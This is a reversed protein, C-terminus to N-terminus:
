FDFRLAFQLVRSPETGAQTTLNGLTGNTLTPDPLGYNTHNFVNYADARFTLRYRENPLPFIKQVGFDLNSFHPGRLNDRTGVQLGTVPVFANAVAAPDNFLQVTTQGSVQVKHVRDRLASKPGVFVEGADAALSTTSAIGNQATFALGTRWTEVGSIQWGGIAENVLTGVSHGFKQGKGVPLDYIFFATVQHTADFESNGRCAHPDTADCLITTVGPEFNGNAHPVTSNNDISHSFTYDFDFQLNNSLRKRLSVFLANYSSSGQNTALANVLFQPVYGVNIGPFGLGNLVNGTGGNALSQNFAVYTAQTCSSFPAPNPAFVIANLTACDVGTAQPVMDEFFPLPAVTAPDAGAIAEKELTTFDGALTHAKNNPDTFNVAQAADALVFLKRSFRGYYDAELQLGGPLERQFGFSTIISYPNQFQNNVDYNFIANPTIPTQFTPTTVTVGTPVHTLSDLRPEVTLNQAPSNSSSGFSKAFSAGFTYDGQNELAIINNVVTDDFIISGGARIVTKRDGLIRGLIGDRFSPSWALGIRPSFDHYEPPYLGPAHNAKGTLSYTLEPTSMPSFVGNLGNAVRTAMLSNFNTNLFSAQVGHVEYPVSEFQYRVGLSLTLTPRIRWADNFYGALEQIRYDHSTATGQPLATHQGNFNFAAQLNFVSGLLGVFAGDWNSTAVGNNDSTPNAMTSPLLIDAPRTSPDLNAIAGGEGQQIFNLANSIGDEIIIPHWEGGFTFTHNRHVWTLDDRFTPEPALTTFSTQRVFPNSLSAGFSLLFLTGGPNFLIPQAENQRTEGYTFQNVLNSNIIWSDGLVWARDKVIDPSTVPDTPFAPTQLISTENRFNFRFFLKNTSNINFDGRALYSNESLPTPTNFRFGATNIGNGQTFDNPNPYRSTFLNILTPDVGAAQFGPTGSCDTTSCPDLAQVQAASLITVCPTSVDASTLRSRPDCSSGGSNNVYAIEGLKVHPMPVVELVSAAERDRRGDYEFFFFAKDKWIPGGVNAGFQNRILATRPVDSIQNFFTNAETAANRNYEYASGHWQNSGSKTTILAQSGSRGGYEPTPNAVLTRFEQVAEVPIAGQTQFAFGNSINTQDIGDVVINGQDTRAGAVAGDRTLNPDISGTGTLPGGSPTIASVVGVQLRLLNAPDDRFENPLSEIAHQDLANGITTDTTNLTVSGEATVEVKQSVTGLDLKVDQTTVTAIPLYMSNLVFVQFGDKKITMSYGPGPPVNEIRYSGDGATKGFYTSNTRTDLLTISAGPVTAGTSDTVTGTISAFSQAKTITPVVCLVVLLFAAFIVKRM